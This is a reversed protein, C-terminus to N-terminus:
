SRKKLMPNSNELEVARKGLLIKGAIFWLIAAYVDMTSSIGFKKELCFVVLYVIGCWVGPIIWSLSKSITAQKANLIYYIGGPVLLYAISLIIPNNIPM